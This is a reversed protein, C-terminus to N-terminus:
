SRKPGFDSAAATILHGFGSSIRSMQGVEKIFTQLSIPRRRAMM